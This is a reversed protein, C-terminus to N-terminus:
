PFSPHIDPIMKRRKKTVHDNLGHLNILYNANSNKRFIKKVQNEDNLNHGLKLDIPILKYRNKFHSGIKKGILGSSGTIIIKKM